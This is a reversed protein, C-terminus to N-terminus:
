MSSIGIVDADTALQEAIRDVQAHASGGRKGTLLTAPSFTYGVPIYYTSVADHLTKVHAAVKRTGILVLQDEIGVIKVNM